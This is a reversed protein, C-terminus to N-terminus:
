NKVKKKRGTSKRKWIRWGLIGTAITTLTTWTGTLPNFWDTLWTRVTESIPIPDTITLVIPFRKMLNESNIRLIPNENTQPNVIPSYFTSNLFSINAIIFFTRTGPNITGESTLTLSTSTFGYPPVPIVRNELSSNIGKPVNEMSLEVVPQFGTTSNVLVDISKKNGPILQLVEPKTSITFEPPPIYVWRVADLLYDGNTLSYSYFFLRYKNPYLMPKLNLDLTISGSKRDYFGQHNYDINSINRTHGDASFENFSRNWKKSTDNWKVEVQYDIGQYGTDNNFDSDVLIGYYIQRTNSLGDAKFLDSISDLWFTTNLHRGDSLYNVSKIDTFSPGNISQELNTDGTVMDVWDSKGDRIEQRQFNPSYQAFVFDNVYSGVAILIVFILCSSMLYNPNIAKYLLYKM